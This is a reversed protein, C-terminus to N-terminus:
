ARLLYSINHCHDSHCCQAQSGPELGLVEEEGAEVEGRWIGRPVLAVWSLCAEDPFMFDPETEPETEVEGLLTVELELEM